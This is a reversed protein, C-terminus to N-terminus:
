VMRQKKTVIVLSGGPKLLEYCKRVMGRKDSMYEYARVPITSDYKTEEDLDLTVFYGCVYQVNNYSSLQM